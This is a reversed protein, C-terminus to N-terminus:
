RRNRRASRRLVPLGARLNRNRLDMRNRRIGVRGVGVGARKLCRRAKRVTRRNGDTNLTVNACRDGRFIRADATPAFAMLVFAALMTMVLTKM